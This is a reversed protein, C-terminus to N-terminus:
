HSCNNCTNPSCQNNNCTGSSNSGCCGSFCQASSTCPGGLGFRSAQAYARNPTLTVIAPILLAAAGTLKQLMQRRSENVPVSERFDSELLRAKALEDLTLALLEAGPLVTQRGDLASKIADVGAGQELLEFVAAATDDLLHVKDDIKDYVLLQDDLRHTL